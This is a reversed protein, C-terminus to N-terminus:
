AAHLGGGANGAAAVFIVGAKHVAEAAIDIARGVNCRSTPQPLLVCCLLMPCIILVADCELLHQSVSTCLCVM